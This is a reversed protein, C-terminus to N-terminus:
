ALGNAVPERGNFPEPRGAAAASRKAIWFALPVFRHDADKRPEETQVINGNGREKVDRAVEEPHLEM